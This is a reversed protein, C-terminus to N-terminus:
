RGLLVINKFKQFDTSAGGILFGDLLELKMIEQANEAMVSGGYILHTTIESPMQKGLWEFVEQLYTNDPVIGTGISWVPEYAIFVPVKAHKILQLVPNLQESLIEFTKRAKYDEEQEGICIIPSIMNNLLQQAKRAIAENSECFAKRRESHGIICHSCGIQSLSQASIEGTYAGQEHESCTQAGINLTEAKQAISGLTVSSPCIITQTTETNLKKLDSVHHEIFTISQEFTLYMKWNAIFYFPKASMFVKAM